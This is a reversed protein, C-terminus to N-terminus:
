SLPPPEPSPLPPSPPHLLLLSRSLPTFPSSSLSLCVLADSMGCFFSACCGCLVAIFPALSSLTISRLSRLCFLVVAGFPFSSVFGGGVLRCVCCDLVSREAALVGDAGWVHAAFSVVAFVLVRGSLLIKQYSGAIAQSGPRDKFAQLVQSITKEFGLDLLRDAEDLM